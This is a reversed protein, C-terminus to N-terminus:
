MDLRMKSLRKNPCSPSQLYEFLSNIALTNAPLAHGPELPRSTFPKGIITEFRLDFKGLHFAM